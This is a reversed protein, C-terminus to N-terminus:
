ARAEADELELLRLYSDWLVRYYQMIRGPQDSEPIEACCFGQYGTRRLLRLLELWPYDPLCIDRMHVLAIRDKLVEFNAEISGGVVEGTNSNWCVFVNEHDAYDMIRRVRRPDSTQPGHVELRVQVDFQAAYEGCVGLAQGIQCLTQEEPIGRETRLGNPRVKIGPAGVDAALRVYEKTGEINQKVERPDDSHYEFASGLGALQVPSNEFMSRVKERERASLGVEVGHAHTTRLEVGEFGHEACMRLLKELDWDRALNFSVLGLRM